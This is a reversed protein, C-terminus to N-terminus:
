QAPAAKQSLPERSLQLRLERPQGDTRAPVFFKDDARDLVRRMTEALLRQEFLV